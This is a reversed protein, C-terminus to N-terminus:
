VQISSPTNKLLSEPIVKLSIPIRATSKKPKDLRAFLRAIRRKESAAKKAALIALRAEAKKADKEAPPLLLKDAKKAMRELSRKEITQLWSKRRSSARRCTLILATASPLTRYRLWATIENMDKRTTKETQVVRFSEVLDRCSQCECFDKCQHTKTNLWTEIVKRSRMLWRKGAERNMSFAKPLTM